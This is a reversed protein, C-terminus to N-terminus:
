PDYCSCNDKRDSTHDPIFLRALRELASAVAAAATSAALSYYFSILFGTPGNPFLNAALRSKRHSPLTKTHNYMIFNKFFRNDKDSAALAAM